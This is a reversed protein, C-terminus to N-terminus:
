AEASDDTRGRAGANLHAAVEAAIEATIGSSWTTRFLPQGELFDDNDDLIAYSEVDPHRELWLAIEEGRFGGKVSPTIDFTPHVMRDVEERGGDFHRWSSSLVVTCGTDDVIGAVRAALEPDIGVFGLYSQGTGVCNCVGDIDLFLVKM